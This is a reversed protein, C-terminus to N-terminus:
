ASFVAAISFRWLKGRKRIRYSEAFVVTPCIKNTLGLWAARMRVSEALTGKKAGVTKRSSQGFRISIVRHVEVM